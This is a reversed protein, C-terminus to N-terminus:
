AQRSKQIVASPTFEARVVLLVGDCWNAIIGADAVPLCPPSDVIVWDFMATLHGFLEPIWKHPSFCQPFMPTIIKM